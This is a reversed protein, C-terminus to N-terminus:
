RLAMSNMCVMNLNSNTVNFNTLIMVTNIIYNHYLKLLKVAINKVLLM